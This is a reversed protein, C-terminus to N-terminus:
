WAIWDILVATGDQTRKLLRISDMVFICSDDLILLLHVRLRLLFCFRNSQLLTRWSMRTERLLGMLLLIMLLLM